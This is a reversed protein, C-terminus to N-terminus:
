PTASCLMGTIECWHQGVYYAVLGILINILTGLLFRTLLWSGWRNRAKLYALQSVNESSDANKVADPVKLTFPVQVVNRWVEWKSAVKFALWGAIIVPASMWFAALSILREFIGLWMGASARDIVKNWDEEKIPAPASPKAEKTKADLFPGVFLGVILTFAIAIIIRWFEEM